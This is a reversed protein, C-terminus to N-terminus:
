YSKAIEGDCPRWHGDINDSEDAAMGDRFFPAAYKVANAYFTRASAENITPLRRWRQQDFALAPIEPSACVWQYPRYSKNILEGDASIVEVKDCRWGNVCFLMSVRKTATM